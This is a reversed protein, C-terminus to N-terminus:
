QQASPTRLSHANKRKQLVNQPRKSGIKFLLHAFANMKQASFPETRFHVSKKISIGSLSSLLIVIILYEFASTM